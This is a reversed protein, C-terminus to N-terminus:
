VRRVNRSYSSTKVTTQMGATSTVSKKKDSVVLIAARMEPWHSAPAVQVAYSDDGTEDDTGMEWAVYGRLYVGVHV